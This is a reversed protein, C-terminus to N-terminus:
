PQLLVCPTNGGYSPHRTTSHDGVHESSPQLNSTTAQIRCDVHSTRSQPCPTTQTIHNWAYIPVKQFLTSILLCTTLEATQFKHTVSAHHFPSCSQEAFSRTFKVILHQATPTCCLSDFLTHTLINAFSISLICIPPNAMSDSNGGTINLSYIQFLQPCVIIAIRELSM